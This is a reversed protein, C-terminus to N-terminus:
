LGPPSRPTLRPQRDGKRRKAGSLKFQLSQPRTISASPTALGVPRRAQHRSLWPSPHRRRRKLSLL